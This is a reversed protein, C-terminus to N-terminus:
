SFQVGEAGQDQQETMVHHQFGRQGNNRPLSASFRTDHTIIPCVGDRAKPCVGDRPHAEEAFRGRLVERGEVAGEEGHLRVACGGEEKVDSVGEEKVDCGGEEKVDCGREEKVDCVGEEKVDCDGEEKM